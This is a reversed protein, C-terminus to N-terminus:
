EKWCISAVAQVPPAAWQDVIRREDLAISARHRDIV